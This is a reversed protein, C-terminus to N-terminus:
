ANMWKVKYDGYLGLKDYLFEDPYKGYGYGKAGAKRMMYKRVKDATYDKVKHLQRSGNSVRFYNAWGRMVPNLQRVIESAKEMRYINAIEKVKDMAKKVAKRSPWFYAMKKKTLPSMMRKFSFGLFDFSEEEANTIRTKKANVRLRLVKIIKELVKKNGEAYQKTLIVIDDAYRILTAYKQVKRWAKDIQDLYINALLPSIVGGQPTGRGDDDKRDVGMVDAKLFLNILWLIKRDVIRRAVRNLLEKHPISGFCDELDVEIVQTRGNYLNKKIENVADYTSKGPRYGYSNKEFDAEFIPEIVLKLAMQVVRDKVTPISLPRKKGDAKPILVRKLSRPRYTQEKLEKGIESLLQGVGEKEIDEITKGDIGAGGKNARVRKWSEDLVDKRYVKDYLAYFRFKPESKAKRYIKIQFERVKETSTLIKELTGNKREGLTKTL